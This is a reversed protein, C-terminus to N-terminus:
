SNDRKRKVICIFSGQPGALTGDTMGRSVLYDKIAKAAIYCEANWSYTENSPLNNQRDDIAIEVQWDSDYEVRKDIDSLIRDIISM